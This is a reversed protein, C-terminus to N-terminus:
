QLNSISVSVHWCELKTKSEITFFKSVFEFEEIENYAWQVIYVSYFLLTTSISELSM